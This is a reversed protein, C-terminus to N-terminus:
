CVVELKYMALVRYREQIDIFRFEVDVSMNRIDSITGLVSKLEEFTDPSQKLKKSLQQKTTYICIVFLFVFINVNSVNVHTTHNLVMLEDRLNFLDERAPKRLLSGLSTIWSETIEWVTNVLPELNLHICHETKSLPEQMVQQKINTLFQLKDDYLVYSPNKAAFRENVITKNMGWLSRYRKWYILYQDVSLLLQQISKSVASASENIQPHQWVDSFFTFTVLEEEGGAHQPPCEICTGHM